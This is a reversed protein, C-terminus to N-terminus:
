AASRVLEVKANGAALPHVSVQRELQEVAGRARQLMKYDIREGRLLVLATRMMIKIDLWPSANKIYWIDLANKDNPLMDRDGHVQALGTLGPRVRLRSLFDHPQDRPLLPRPGIFSMDGVLINYLQPLEDLRTWRLLRGISSSRHADPVRRGTRDYAGRMTRFKYLKFPRGSRGPRKQWFVVPLGVDVIVLLAVLGALPCLVMSLLTALVIDAARKMYGYRGLNLTEVKIPQQSRQAESASM